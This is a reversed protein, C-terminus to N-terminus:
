WRWARGTDGSGWTGGMNGPSWERGSNPDRVTLLPLQRSKGMEEGARRKLLEEAMRPIVCPWQLQCALCRPPHIRDNKRHKEVLARLDPDSLPKM